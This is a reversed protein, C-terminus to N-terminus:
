ATLEKKPKSVTTTGPPISVTLSITTGEGPSSQIELDGGIKRARERMGILGFHGLRAAKPGSTDFGDGDDTIKLTIGTEHYELLIRVTKPQGHALSNSVAEQGIRLVNAEISTPLRLPTGLTNIKIDVDSQGHLMDLVETFAYQLSGTELATSRLDWVSRRTEQRSHRLLARAQDLTEKASDPAKELNGSAADLQMQIGALEQELTDHLERAIRTREDMVTERALKAEIITTQHNVQRHLASIWSLALALAGLLFLSAWIIRKITWFPPKKLIIIDAPSQLLIRFSVVDFRKDTDSLLQRKRRFENFCIGVVEVVSGPQPLEALPISKNQLLRVQFFDDEARLLLNQSGRHMLTDTVTGEIRVLRGHYVGSLGSMVSFSFPAPRQGEGLVEFVANFLAPYGDKETPFGVVQVGMGPWVPDSQPTEVWVTKSDDHVFFGRGRDTYTVTGHIRQRTTSGPEFRLITGIDRIPLRDFSSVGPDVVTIGNYDEMLLRVGRLRGWGSISQYIGRCRVVAGLLDTFRDRMEEPAHVIAEVLGASNSIKLAIQNTGYRQHSDTLSRVIGTLEVWESHNVPNTLEYHELRRPLGLEQHGVKRVQVPGNDMGSISPVFQGPRIEGDIIVRDGRALDLFGAHNTNDAKFFTGGTSDMLFALGAHANVYTVVGHLRASYGETAQKKTLRKIQAVNTLLPLTTDAASLIGGCGCLLASLIIRHLISILSRRGTPVM